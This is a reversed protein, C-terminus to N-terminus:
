NSIVFGSIKIRHTSVVGIEFEYICLRIFTIEIRLISDDPNPM